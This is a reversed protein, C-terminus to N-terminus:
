TVNQFIEASLSDWITHSAIHSAQTTQVGM